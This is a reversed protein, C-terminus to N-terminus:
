AGLQNMPQNKKICLANSVTQYSEALKQLAACFNSDHLNIKQEMKLLPFYERICM